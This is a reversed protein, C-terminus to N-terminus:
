KRYVTKWKCYVTQPSFIGNDLTKSTFSLHQQQQEQTSGTKTQSARRLFRTIPDAGEGGGCIWELTHFTKEKRWMYISGCFSAVFASSPMLLRPTFTSLWGHNSSSTPGNLLKTLYLQPLESQMHFGEGCARENDKRKGNVSKQRNKRPVGM